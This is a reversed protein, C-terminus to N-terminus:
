PARTQGKGLYKRCFDKFLIPQKKVITEDEPPFNAQCFALIKVAFDGYQAVANREVFIM